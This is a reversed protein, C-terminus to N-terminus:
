SDLALVLPFYPRDRQGLSYSVFSSLTVPEVVHRLPHHGLFIRYVTTVTLGHPRLPGAHGTAHGRTTAM